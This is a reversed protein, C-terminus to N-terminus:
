RKQAACRQERLNVATLKDVHALNGGLVTGVTLCHIGAFGLKLFNAANETQNELIEIQERVKRHEFIEDIRLDM